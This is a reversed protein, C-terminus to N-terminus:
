SIPPALHPPPLHPPPVSARGGAGPVSARGGVVPVSARGSVVPVSARGTTPAAYYGPDSYGSDVYSDSYGYGDAPPPVSARGSTPRYGDDYEGAHPDGYSTM